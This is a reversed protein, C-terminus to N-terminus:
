LQNLTRDIFLTNLNTELNTIAADIVKFIAARQSANSLDLTVSSTLGNSALAQNFAATAQAASIYNYNRSGDVYALTGFVNNFVSGLTSLPIAVHTSATSVTSLNSYLPTPHAYLQDLYSRIQYPYQQYTDGNWANTFSNFSSVTAATSGVSANVDTVFLQAYYGANYAVNLLIDLQSGPLSEFSGLASDLSPQWPPTWGYNTSSWPTNLTSGGVYQLALYDNVHFYATLMPGYYKNNFSAPTARTYQTAANSMTYGINKQIAMYNILSFGQPAYTGAVMDVAYNNIQYPGGQGAGMVAQQNPSPDILPSSNTYYETAINEQLLQAMISGYLYDQNFQVNPTVEKILHGYMVGAIVNAMILDTYNDGELTMFDGIQGNNNTGFTYHFNITGTTTVSGGSPFPTPVPTSVPIPSPTASPSPSLSPSPTATPSPTPSASPAPTATPSASPSPTATPTATPTPSPTTGGTSGFLSVAETGITAPTATMATGGTATTVAVSNTLLLDWVMLGDNTNVNVTNGLIHTGLRQVSYPLNLANQYQDKQVVTGTSGADANNIVLVAGGWSETPIELGGSVTVASPLMKRYEDYAVSPDYYQYGADYSMVNLANLLSGVTKGAYAGTTVQTAFTLRERGASGGWYSIQSPNAPNPIQATYDAGTSWGALALVRSRGDTASAADVAERMAQIAKAYETVVASTSGSTEYDVDLGDVKMDVLFQALATKTPSTSAGSAKGADAALASWNSYTAGGVSLVVRKGANHILRISQTVDQPASSFQIGTGTWNNAALGSWTFNPQAFALYIDTYPTTSTKALASAALLQADTMPTGSYGAYYYYPDSWSPFYGTLHRTASVVPTPTAVPTASPTATPKPTATPSSVPTPTASSKPTATPSPVPTPTASPKPTATPSPSPTPTPAANVTIATGNFVLKPTVPPAGNFTFGIQISAKPAITATWSAPTLTYVNAVPGTINANWISTEQQPTTLKASWNPITTSSTNTINLYATYGGSWATVSWGASIPAATAAHLQLSGLSTIGTLIMAIMLAPGNGVKKLQTASVVEGRAPNNNM